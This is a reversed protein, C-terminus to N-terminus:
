FNLDTISISSAFGAIGPPICIPRWRPLLIPPSPPAQVWRGRMPFRLPRSQSAVGLPLGQHPEAPSSISFLPIM